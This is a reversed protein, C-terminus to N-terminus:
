DIVLVVKVDPALQALQRFFRLFGRYDVPPTQALLAEVEGLKPHSIAQLQQQIESGLWDGVEELFDVVPWSEFAEFSLTVPLYDRKEYLVDALHRLLTTKGMQRPAYITFYTGREIQAVLDTVLDSRPVVYHEAANVPGFTNFYRM